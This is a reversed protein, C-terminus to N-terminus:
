PENKIMEKATTIYELTTRRSCGYEGMIIYLLKEYDPNKSKKISKIIIGIRNKREFERKNM